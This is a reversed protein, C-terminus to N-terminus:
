YFDKGMLKFLLSYLPLFFTKNKRGKYECMSHQKWNAADQIAVNGCFGQTFLGTKLLLKKLLFALM